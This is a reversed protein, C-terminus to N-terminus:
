NYHHGRIARRTREYPAQLENAIKRISYGKKYFTHILEIDEESFKSMPNNHGTINNPVYLGNNVAHHFNEKPSCWELNSVENNLKNGDKHNVYPKNEIKDIFTEAVLKHIFYTKGSPYLTVRYYGNKSKRLSKVHKTKRNRVSGNTSVEYEKEFPITKWM